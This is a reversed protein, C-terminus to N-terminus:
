PKIHTKFKQQPVTYKILYYHSPAYYLLHPSHKGFIPHNEQSPKINDELFLFHGFKM